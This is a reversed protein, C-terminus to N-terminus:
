QRTAPATKQRRLWADVWAPDLRGSSAEVRHRADFFYTRPLEGRWQPDVAYRLRETYRDAFIYQREARPSYRKLFALAAARDEPGDTSVLILPVGRQQRQLTKWDRMEDRCPECTVSWFAVVFPRGAYRTRLANMTEAVFPEIVPEAAPANLTWLAAALAILRRIM